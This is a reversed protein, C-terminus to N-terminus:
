RSIPPRYLNNTQVSLYHSDYANFQLPDSQIASTLLDTQLLLASACGNMPCIDDGCCNDMESSSDMTQNMMSSHKMKSHDMHSHNTHSTEMADHAKIEQGANNPGMDSHDHLMPCPAALAYVSQGLM